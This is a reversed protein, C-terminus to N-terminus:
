INRRRTKRSRRSKRRRSRTKRSRRSKRSRSRSKRSRSRSKRSRSRRRSKRSRSRSKRSIIPLRINLMSFMKNIDTDKSISERIINNTIRNKGINRTHIGIIEFIETLLYELFCRALTIERDSFIDYENALIKISNIKILLKWKSEKCIKEGYSFLNEGVVNEINSINKILAICLKNAIYNLYIKSDTTIQLDPHVYGLINQLDKIFNIM